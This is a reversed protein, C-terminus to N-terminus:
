QTWIRLSLAARGSRIEELRKDSVQIEMPFGDAKYDYVIPHYQPQPEGSIQTELSMKKPDRKEDSYNKLCRKLGDNNKLTLFKQNGVLFPLLEIKSDLVEVNMDTDDDENESWAQSPIPQKDFSLGLTGSRSSLSSVTHSNASPSSRSDLSDTSPSRSRPFKKPSIAGTSQSRPKGKVAPGQVLVYATIFTNRVEFICEVNGHCDENHKMQQM